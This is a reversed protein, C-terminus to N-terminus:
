QHIAQLNFRRSLGQLLDQRLSAKLDTTWEPLDSQVVLGTDSIVYRFRSKNGTLGLSVTTGTSLYQSVSSDFSLNKFESLVQGFEQTSESKSSTYGLSASLDPDFTSRSALLGGEASDSSAQSGLLDPNNDLARQLAQNYTLPGATSPRAAVTLLLLLSPIM